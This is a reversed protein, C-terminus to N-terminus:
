MFYLKFNTKFTETHCFVDVDVENDVEIGHDIYWDGEWIWEVSPLQFSEKPLHLKGNKSSWGWRDTHKMLIQLFLVCLNCTSKWKFCQSNDIILFM